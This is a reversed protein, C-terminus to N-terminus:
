RSARGPRGTQTSPHGGVSRGPPAAGARVGAVAHHGASHGGCADPASGAGSPPSRRPADRPSTTRHNAPGPPTSGRRDGPIAARGDQERAVDALAAPPSRANVNVGLWCRSLMRVARPSVESARRARVASPGGGHSPGAPLAGPRDKGLGRRWPRSSPGARTARARVRSAEGASRRRAGCQRATAGPQRGPDPVGQGRAGVQRASRRPRASSGSPRRVSWALGRRGPAARRSSAAREPRVQLCPQVPQEVM